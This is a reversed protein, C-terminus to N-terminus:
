ETAAKENELKKPRGRKSEKKEPPTISKSYLEGLKKLANLRCTNCNMQNRNLPEFVQNYTKMIEAFEGGSVHIFMNKYAKILQEGHPKLEEIQEKTLKKEM